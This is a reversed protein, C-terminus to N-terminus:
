RHRGKYVPNSIPDGFCDIVTACTEETPSPPLVILGHPSRDVFVPFGHSRLAGATSVRIKSYGDFNRIKGVADACIQDVSASPDAAISLAWEDRDERDLITDRHTDANIKMYYPDGEGLRIVLAKDPLLICSPYTIAV